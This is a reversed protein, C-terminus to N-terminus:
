LRVCYSIRTTSPRYIQLTMVPRPLTDYFTHSNAATTLRFLQAYACNDNTHKCMHAPSGSVNIGYASSCQLVYGNRLTSLPTAHSFGMGSSWPTTCTLNALSCYAFGDDTRDCEDPWM